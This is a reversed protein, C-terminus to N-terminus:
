LTETSIGVSDWGHMFKARFDQQAHQNSGRNEHTNYADDPTRFKGGLKATQAAKYAQNATSFYPATFNTERATEAEQKLDKKAKVKAM